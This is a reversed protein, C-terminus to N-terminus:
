WLHDNALPGLHATVLEDLSTFTFKSPHSRVLSNPTRTGIETFTLVVWEAHIQRCPFEPFNELPRGQITKKALCKGVSVEPQLEKRPRLRLPAVHERGSKCCWTCGPTQQVPNEEFIDILGIGCAPRTYRWDTMTAHYRPASITQTSSTLTIDSSSEKMRNYIEVSPSITRHYIKIYITHEGDSSRLRGALHGFM